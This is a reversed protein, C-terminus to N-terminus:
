RFLTKLIFREPLNTQDNLDKYKDNSTAEIIELNELM